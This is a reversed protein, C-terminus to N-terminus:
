AAKRPHVNRRCTGTTNKVSSKHVPRGRHRNPLGNADYREPFLQQPAVGLADALIKEMRPYPEFMAKQTQQRTVGAGRAISALSEGKLKLQYLVWARRKAPDTILQKAKADLQM